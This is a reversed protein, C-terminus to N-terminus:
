KSRVPDRQSAVEPYNEIIWQVLEINGSNAAALLPTRTEEDRENIFGKLATKPLLFTLYQILITFLSFPACFKKQHFALHQAALTAISPLGL